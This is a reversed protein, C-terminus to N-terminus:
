EYKGDEVEVWRDPEKKGKPRNSITKFIMYGFYFSVGTITVRALFTSIMSIMIEDM